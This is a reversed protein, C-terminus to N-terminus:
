CVAANLRLDDHRVRISHAFLCHEGQRGADGLDDDSAADNILDLSGADTVKKSNLEDLVGDLSRNSTLEYRRLLVKDTTSYVCIYKSRGGSVAGFHLLQKM